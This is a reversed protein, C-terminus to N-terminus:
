PLRRHPFSRPPGLTQFTPPVHSRKLDAVRDCHSSTPRVRVYTKLLAIDDEDLARFGKKADHEEPDEQKEPMAAVQSLAYPTHPHPTPSPQASTSWRLRRVAHTTIFCLYPWRRRPRDERSREAVPTPATRCVCVCTGRGGRRVCQLSPKRTAPPRSGCRRCRLCCRRHSWGWWRVVGSGSVSVSVSVTRPAPCCDVAPLVLGRGEASEALRTATHRTNQWAAMRGCLQGAVMPANVGM